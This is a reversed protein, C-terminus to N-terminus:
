LGFTIESLLLFFGLKFHDLCLKEGSLFASSKSCKFQTKLTEVVQFWCPELTTSHMKAAVSLPLKFSYNNEWRM